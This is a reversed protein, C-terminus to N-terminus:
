NTNWHAYNKPDMDKKIYFNYKIKPCLKTELVFCYTTRQELM